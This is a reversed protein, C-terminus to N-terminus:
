KAKVKWSTPALTNGVLDKIGKLLKVTYSKGKKLNKTPNLTATRRTSSWTVKALLASSQNSPYLRMTTGTVGTVPESFTVTFNATRRATTLPSKRAVRPATADVVFGRWGSSATAKGAADLATIRWQWSGDAIVKPSAWALSVTNATEVVSSSAALRREFRYSTAGQTAQWTFLSDRSGVLAGAVPNSATPPTGSVRFSAAPVALDSWAGKRGKADVRRVRWTYLASSAPLPTTPSFAVQKSAGSLVRKTTSGTTDGDKYVEIDYSGAFPLPDWRFTRGGLGASGQLPTRLSPKPSKKLFTRSQSWALDRGSGDIAQVRWYINGEPYTNSYSTFMTQDVVLTEIISTAQFNPATAVQIRYQKAEIRPGVGTDDVHGPAPDLNTSLYDHWSFTVDNPLQAGNAPSDLEVPNSIKNFAHGAHALPACGPVTTAAKCPQVFWYYASGAQSDILTATPMYRNTQVAVPYGSVVNTMQEDRALWVKYNGAEPLAEWSLVPTQRMGQCREPLAIACSTASGDLATGTLAIRQGTVAPLPRITFPRPATSTALLTGGDYAEVMWEFTGSDLYATGKDEASPYGFSDSLRTWGSGGLPRVLIRYTTAGAVPTWSLTPFRDSTSGPAPATPEPAPDTAEPLEAVTFTPQSGLLLSSGTRNGNVTQVTWRYTAGATLKTRPTFSTNSTSFTGGGSGAGVPSLTVKYGAARAVPAWRLTPVEVTAGNTPSVQDVMEPEYTFSRLEAEIGDTVITKNDVTKGPSDTAIVRWFYTGGSAPWCGNNGIPVFTTHVTDCEDFSNFSPSTSLQVTYLSAHEVPQWQFYFPDGVTAGDAPYELQPQDPWHRRFTWTSVDDWDLKNGLADVPRVRWYYQDNAIGSPPSWRTGTINTPGQVLTLFNEDTSIQLDYTKAGDVPEWTLVVDVINTFPGDPPGVLAPAALGGIAYSWPASEDNSWQTFIGAALTARVRWYYTTALQPDPVVLSATRTPYSDTLSLDAFNPDTSVEVTYASAGHVPTWSLLAPEHPQQLEAGDSPAQLVPGALASRSFSAEAWQSKASGATTRVRWWLEGAPLQATPTARRNVTTTKWATTTFSDSTSVEVDYSTAGTVRSWQLLPQSGPPVVGQSLNSPARPTAAVAGPAGLLAAILLTVTLAGLCPASFARRLM